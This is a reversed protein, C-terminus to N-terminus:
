EMAHCLREFEALPVPKGFLYGQYRNCGYQRLFALQDDTEVGEAIIELGFNNAINIITRVMISNNKDTAIDRVFSQDIKLQELPLRKLYALSSYGTGFDDMAFRIGIHRLERMKVIAEEVDDLIFSETLELKLRSPRIGSREICENVQEVFWPQSLQRPSVNVSLVIDRMAVDMEWRKLQNCAQEIVWDGIPLIMGIEEALPIFEAPSVMGRLPHNWRILAEAGIIRGNDDVQMQYYLELQDRRVSARLDKELEARYEMEVQMAPDFFCVRNRGTSKAQYMALDAQKLVEDISNQHGRFLSVGMSPSSNHEITKLQYPQSLEARIKEAITEAQNAAEKEIGSLSELAVVFEDGGLRSVTDGERVNRTLRTAVEQLLEDGVDHGQTDNLTKFNDLDIFIVAGHKGSRSSISMSQLLREQLLRRNPLHTLSDYFALRHIEDESQKRLTIDQIMFLVVREEGMQALSIDALFARRKGAVDLGFGFEHLHQQTKLVQFVADDLEHAGLFAGPSRNHWADNGTMEFMQLVANNVLRIRGTEDLVIFGIPMNSVIQETYSRALSLAKHEAHFYTDLALGMDFFVVKLLARVARHGRPEDDRYHMLVHPVVENMYKCYASMYWKPTLGVRQHVVGVHLRNEIYGADYRGQTLQDFYTLQAQKLRELHVDDGLLPRIEPFQLLHAYFIDILEGRKDKLLGHLELLLAADEEDFTLFAKRQAIEADDIGIEYLLSSSPPM